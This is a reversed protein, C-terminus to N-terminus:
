GRTDDVVNAVHSMLASLNLFGIMCLSHSCKM